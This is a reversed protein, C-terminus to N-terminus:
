EWVFSHGLAFARGSVSESILECFCDVFATDLMQCLLCGQRLLECLHLLGTKACCFKGVCPHKWKELHLRCNCFHCFVGVGGAAAAAAAGADVDRNDDRVLTSNDMDEEVM